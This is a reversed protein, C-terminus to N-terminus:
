PSGATRQPSRVWLVASSSYVASIAEHAGAGQAGCPEGQMYRGASGAEARASAVNHLQM